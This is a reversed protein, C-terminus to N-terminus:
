SNYIDGVKYIAIPIIVNDYSSITAGGDESIFGEYFTFTTSSSTPFSFAFERSRIRFRGSTLEFSGLVNTDFSGDSKIHKFITTHLGANVKYEIIVDTVTQDITIAQEIFGTAPNPNEWVKTLKMGNFGAEIRDELDNLNDASIVDGQQTVSDPSNVLEQKGEADKDGIIFKNLGLGLRAFWRRKEFAM